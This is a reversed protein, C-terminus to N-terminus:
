DKKFRIIIFVKLMNKLSSFLKILANSINFV